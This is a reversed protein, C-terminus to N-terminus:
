LIAVQIRELVGFVVLGTLRAVVLIWEDPRLRTTTRVPLTTLCRSSEELPPTSDLSKLRLLRGMEFVCVRLASARVKAELM